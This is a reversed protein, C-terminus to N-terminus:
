CLSYRWILLEQCHISQIDEARGAEIVLWQASAPALRAGRVMGLYRRWEYWCAVAVMGWLAAVLPVSAAVVHVFALVVLSLM